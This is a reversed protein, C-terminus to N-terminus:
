TFLRRSPVAWIEPEGVKKIQSGWYVVLGGLWDGGLRWAVDRLPRWDTAAVSNRMKIEVGIIGQQTVLLLDVELGSRTRYFYVEITRRMTKIWKIIEGV